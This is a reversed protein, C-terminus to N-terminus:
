VFFPNGETEARLVDRLALGDRDMEHGAVSELLDLVESDDLGQLALRTIGPERHTAALLGTLPHSADIDSDRFTGIMLVPTTLARGLLHNALALTQVDAWHLDDLVILAPRGRASVA